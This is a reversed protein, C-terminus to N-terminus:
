EGPAAARCSRRQRVVHDADTFDGGGDMGVEHIETRATTARTLEGRRFGVSGNGRAVVVAADGSHHQQGVRHAEGRQSALFLSAIMDGSSAREDIM